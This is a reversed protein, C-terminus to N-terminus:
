NISDDNIEKYEEIIQYDTIDEVVSFFVKVTVSDENTYSGIIKKDLIFEGEKLNEEIKKTGVIIAKNIAEEKNNNEDIINMEQQYQKEFSFPLINNKFIVKNKVIKNKYKKFNFLELTNNLFKIIYVNKNNGTLKEEKYKFPYTITAEYWVEGYITGSASITNKVSENLYIYGSVIIDGKKVYSKKGKIIQGSNVKLDYIIADKSAILHRLEYNNENITNIRPEYRIIYKTGINEIEIWEIQERYKELLIKKINQLENYNKKFNYKKLGQNSLEELIQNKMKSDNTIIDISFTIKSLFIVISLGIM